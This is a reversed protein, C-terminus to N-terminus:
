WLNKAETASPKTRAVFKIINGIAELIEDGAAHGYTDNFMKFDDVDMLMISLPSGTNRSQFIEKEAVDLMHRRNFLGTLQDTISLNKFREESEKLKQEAKKREAIEQELACNKEDLEHILTALQAANDEQLEKVEMLEEILEERQIEAEKELTVDQIICICNEPTDCSAAINAVSMDIFHKESNKDSIALSLNTQGAPGCFLDHLYTRAEIDQESLILEYLPKGIAEEESFKSITTFAANSFLIKGSKDLIVIASAANSFVDRFRFQGCDPCKSLLSDRLIKNKDRLEALESYISRSNSLNKM